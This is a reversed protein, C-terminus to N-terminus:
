DSQAELAGLEKNLNELVESYIGKMVEQRSGYYSMSKDFEEFTLGEAKLLSDGSNTMVKHFQNVSVYRQKIYMELKIMEELVHVLKDRPILQDPEEIRNIGQACSVLMFIGVIIALFRM